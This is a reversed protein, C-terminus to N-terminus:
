YAEKCHANSNSWPTALPASFYPVDINFANQHVHADPDPKRSGFDSNSPRCHCICLLKVPDYDIDVEGVAPDDKLMSIQLKPEKTAERFTKVDGTKLLSAFQTFAPDDDGGKQRPLLVHGHTSGVLNSSAELAGKLGSGFRVSLRFMYRGEKQKPRVGWIGRVEEVFDIVRPGPNGDDDQIPVFLARVISDFVAQRDPSLGNYVVAPDKSQYQKYTAYSVLLAKSREDLRQDNTPQSVAAVAGAALCLGGMVALRRALQMDDVWGLPRVREFM